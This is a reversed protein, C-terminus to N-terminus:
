GAWSMEWCDVTSFETPTEKLEAWCSETQLATSFAKTNAMLDVTLDAKRWASCGVKMLAMLLHGKMSVTQLATQLAKRKEWNMVWCYATTNGKWDVMQVAM